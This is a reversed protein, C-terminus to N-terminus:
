HQTFNTRSVIDQDALEKELAIAARFWLIKLSATFFPATTSLLPRNKAPKQIPTSEPTKEEELKAVLEGLTTDIVAYLGKGFGLKGEEIGPM